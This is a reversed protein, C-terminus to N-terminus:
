CQAAPIPADDATVNWYCALYALLVVMVWYEKAARDIMATPSLDFVREFFMLPQHSFALGYSAIAAYAVRARMGGQTATRALAAFPVTLVILYNPFATPSLVIMAVMWLSFAQWRRESETERRVTAHVTALFVGLEALAIVIRRVADAARSLPLDGQPWFIRSIVANISINDPDSLWFRNTLFPIAEAFSWAVHGVRWLTVLGILAVGVATWALARWQRRCALYGVLVFPFVKLMGALALLLGAAVDLGREACVMMLVALLLILCQTEGYYFEQYLPPYMLTLALFASARRGDLPRQVALLLYLAAALAAVNLGLWTWYAPHPALHTLAEFCLLFTPPYSAKTIGAVDLGLARGMPDLRTVYPNIGERLALASVYYHNFDAFKPPLQLALRFVNLLGLLWLLILVPPRTIQDALWGAIPASALETASGANAARPKLLFTM